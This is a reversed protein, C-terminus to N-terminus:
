QSLSDHGAPIVQPQLSRSCRIAPPTSPVCLGEMTQIGKPAKVVEVTPVRSARRHSGRRGKFSVQKRGEANQPIRLGNHQINHLRQIIIPTEEQTTNTTPLIVEPVERAGDELLLQGEGPEEM